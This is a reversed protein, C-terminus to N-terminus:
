GIGRLTPIRFEASLGQDEKQNPSALPMPLVPPEKSQSKGNSKSKDWRAAAGKKGAERRAESIEKRRQKIEEAPKNVDTYDHVLYGDAARDWLGQEFLENVHRPKADIELLVIKVSKATLVGDTLNRSCFCLGAVYLLKADKSLRQVKGNNPWNDDLLAYPMLREGSSSPAARIRM